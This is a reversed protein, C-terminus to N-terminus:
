AFWRWVDHALERFFTDLDHRFEDREGLQRAATELLNSTQHTAGGLSKATLEPVQASVARLGGALTNLTNATATLQRALDSSDGHKGGGSPLEGNIADLSAATASVEGPVESLAADLFLKADSLSLNAVAPMLDALADLNTASSARISGLDRTLEFSLGSGSWADSAKAGQLAGFLADASAQVNNLGGALAVLTTDLAQAPNSTPSGPTLPPITAAPSSTAHLVFNVGTIAQNQSNLVQGNQFNVYNDIENLQRGDLPQVPRANPLFGLEGADTEYQQLQAASITIPTSLVLWNVPASLPPTTLSGQYYWGQASAPLLQSLDIAGSITASSSSSNLSGADDLISQFAPNATDGVQVFAAVVLEAGTSSTFVLHQEMPYASGNVTNESPDHYHFQALTYTVGDLQITPATTGANLTVKLQFGTNSVTTSGGAFTTAALAGTQSASLQPSVASLDTTPGTLNIPSQDPDGGFPAMADWNDPLITTSGYYGFAGAAPTGPQATPAVTAFSPSIQVYGAPTVERVASAGNQLVTFSYQGSANTATSQVVVGTADVLQIPVNAVPANSTDTVTGQITGLSSGAGDLYNLGALLTSANEAVNGLLNLLEQGTSNVAEPAAAGQLGAIQSGLLTSVTLHPLQSDITRLVDAVTNLSSGFGQLGGGVEQATQRLNAGVLFPLLSGNLNLATAAQNVEPTLQDLVGDLAKSAAAVDRAPNSASVSAEAANVANVIQALAGNQPDTLETVLHSLAQTSPQLPTQLASVTPVTRDELTEIGLRSRSRAQEKRAWRRSVFQSVTM